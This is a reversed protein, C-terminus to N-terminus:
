DGSYPEQRSKPVDAPTFWRLEIGDGIPENWPQSSPLATTWLSIVSDADSAEFKRITLDSTM